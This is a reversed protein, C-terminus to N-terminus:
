VVYSATIYNYYLIHQSHRKLLLLIESIVIVAYRIFLSIKLIPSQITIKNQVEM